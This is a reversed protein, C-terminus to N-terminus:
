VEDYPILLEQNGRIQGEVWGIENRSFKGFFGWFYGWLAEQGIQSKTANQTTKTRPDPTTTSSRSNGWSKAELEMTERRNPRNPKTKTFFLLSFAEDRSIRNLLRDAPGVVPRALGSGPRGPPLRALRDLIRESRAGSRAGGRARRRGRSGAIEVVVVVVVVMM